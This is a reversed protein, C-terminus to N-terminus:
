NGPPPQLAEAPGTRLLRQVIEYARENIGGLTRIRAKSVGLLAFLYWIDGRRGVSMHVDFPPQDTGVAGESAVERREWAAELGGFPSMVRIPSRSVTLGRQMLTKIHREMLDEPGTVDRTCVVTIQGVPEGRYEHLLEVVHEGPRPEVARESWSQPYHIVFDGPSAASATRLREAFPWGSPQLLRCSGIILLLDDAVRAYDSERARAEVFLIRAGDHGGDKLTFWRSIIPGIPSPRRTLADLRDGAQPTDIRRRRLVEISREAFFEELWDAASIERAVMSAYVEAEPGSARTEDHFQALSWVPPSPEVPATAGATPRWRPPLLLAFHWDPTGVTYHFQRAEEPVVKLTTPMIPESPDSPETSM